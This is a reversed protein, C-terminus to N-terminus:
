SGILWYVFNNKKYLIEPHATRVSAEAKKTKLLNLSGNAGSRAGVSRAVLEQVPPYYPRGRCATVRYFATAQLRTCCDLPLLKQVLFAELVSHTTQAPTIKCWDDCDIDIIDENGIDMSRCRDWCWFVAASYNALKKISLPVLQM